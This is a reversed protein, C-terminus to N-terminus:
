HYICVLCELLLQNFCEPLDGKLLHRAFLVPAGWFSGIILDFRYFLRLPFREAVVSFLARWLHLRNVILNVDVIIALTESTLLDPIQLSAFGLLGVAAALVEIAEHQSVFGDLAPEVEGVSIEELSSEGFALELSSAIFLRCADPRFHRAFARVEFIAFEIAFNNKLPRAIFHCVLEFAVKRM